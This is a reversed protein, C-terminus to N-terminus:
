FFFAKKHPIPDVSPTPDIIGQVMHAMHAYEAGMAARVFVPPHNRAM